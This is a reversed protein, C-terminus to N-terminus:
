ARSLAFRSARTVTLFTMHQRRFREWIANVTFKIKVRSNARADGETLLGHSEGKWVSCINGQPSVALVVRGAACEEEQATADVVDHGAIQSLTVLVPLRALNLFRVQPFLVPPTSFHSLRGFSTMRPVNAFRICIDM